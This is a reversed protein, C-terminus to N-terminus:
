DGNDEKDRWAVDLFMGVEQDEVFLVGKRSKTGGTVYRSPLGLGVCM